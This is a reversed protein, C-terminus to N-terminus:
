LIQFLQHIDYREPNQHDYYNTRCELPKRIPLMAILQKLLGNYSASIFSKDPFAKVTLLTGLGPRSIHMNNLHQLVTKCNNTLCFINVLALTVKFHVPFQRATSARVHVVFTETAIDFHQLDRAEYCKAVSTTFKSDCKTLSHGHPDPVDFEWRTRDVHQYQYIYQLHIKYFVQAKPSSTYFHHAAKPGSSHEPETVTAMQYVSHLEIGIQRDVIDNCRMFM